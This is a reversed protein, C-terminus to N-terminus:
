LCAPAFLSYFWIKWQLRLRVNLILTGEATRHRITLLDEHNAAYEEEDNFEFKAHRIVVIQGLKEKLKQTRVAQQMCM